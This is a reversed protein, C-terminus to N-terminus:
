FVLGLRSTSPRHATLGGSCRVCWRVFPDANRKQEDTGPKATGTEESYVERIVAKRSALLSRWSVQLPNAGKPIIQCRPYWHRACPIFIVFAAASSYFAESMRLIKGGPSQFKAELVTEVVKKINRKVSFFSLRHTRNIKVFIEPYFKVMTFSVMVQDSIAV